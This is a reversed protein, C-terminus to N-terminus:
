RMCEIGYWCPSRAGTAFVARYFFQRYFALRHGFVVLFLRRLLADARRETEHQHREPALGVCRAAGGIKVGDILLDDCGRDGGRTERRDAGILLLDAAGDVLRHELPQHEAGVRHGVDGAGVRVDIVLKADAV